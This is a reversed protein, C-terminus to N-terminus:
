ITKVVQTDYADEFLGILGMILWFLPKAIAGDLTCFLVFFLSFQVNRKLSHNRRHYFMFLFLGFGVLGWRFIIEVFANLGMSRVKSTIGFGFLPRENLTYSFYSLESILSVVVSGKPLSPNSSIQQSEILNLEYGETLWVSFPIDKILRLSNGIRNFTIDITSHGFIGVLLICGALLIVIKKNIRCSTVLGRSLYFSVMIICAIYGGLSITFFLCSLILFLLFANNKEVRVFLIVYLCGILFISYFRPEGFCGTIQSIFGYNRYSQMGSYALSIDYQQAIIQYFSVTTTIFVIFIFFRNLDEKTFTQFYRNSLILPFVLFSCFFVGIRLMFVKLDIGDTLSYYCFSIISHVLIYVIFYFIHRNKKIGIWVKKINLLIIIPIVFQWLIFSGIYPTLFISLAV